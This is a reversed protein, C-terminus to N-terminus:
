STSYHPVPKKRVTHVLFCSVIKKVSQHFDLSIEGFTHVWQFHKMYKQCSNQESVKGPSLFLVFFILQPKKKQFNVHRGYRLRHRTIVEKQNGFNEFPCRPFPVFLLMSVPSVTDVFATLMTFKRDPCRTHQSRDDQQLSLNLNTIFCGLM